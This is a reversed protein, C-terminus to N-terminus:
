GARPGARDPAAEALAATRRDPRDPRSSCCWTCSRATRSSSCRCRGCRVSRSGTSGSRSSRPSWRSSWCALWRSPPRGGTWSSCGTSPLPRAAAGAAAACRSCRRHVAPRPPRVPRVPRARRAGPPAEVDGADHRLEVPVAAAVAARLTAPAETCARRTEEYVVRWGARHLAMTLDTDEALTDDSIGGAEALAHRRFAGLAGPVTPICGLADYLRRDLNFGIVYEIHQWRGILGRRNGVKVNGAVAGVAPDAFPQVLRHISDPEVVTDADVMVILDHEALAIGTNLATAKGGAPVRVLRVNPLGLREVVDATGDTSGDDVVIVEVGRHDGARWRGCRRPSRRGARQVRARHGLGARDGATGLVLDAGPPAPRAPGRCRVAAAHPGADARGVVILLLGLVGVTADAVRVAWVLAGGRWRPRAARTAARRRAGAASGAGGLGRVGHHVPVRAAQMAPIFRDLAAVTQARDGGADHMLVVAGADGDPTANRVIADVGPRAWDRSDIDNLVTLYGRRGAERVVSWDPTTSRTRRLSSYPLRLLPDDGRDRRAIAM